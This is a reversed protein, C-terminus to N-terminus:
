ITKRAIFVKFVFGYVHNKKEFLLLEGELWILFTDIKGTFTM